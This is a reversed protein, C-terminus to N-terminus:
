SRKFSKLLSFLFFVTLTLFLPFGTLFFTSALLTITFHTWNSIILSVCTAPLFVLLGLTTATDMIFYSRQSPSSDTTEEACFVLVCFSIFSEFLLLFVIFSFILGNLFGGYVFVSIISALLSLAIFWAYRMLSPPRFYSPNAMSSILDKM